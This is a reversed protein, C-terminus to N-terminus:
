NTKMVIQESFLRKLQAVEASLTALQNRLVMNESQYVTDQHAPVSTTNPPFQSLSRQDEASRWTPSIMRNSTGQEVQQSLPAAVSAYSGKAHCNDVPLVGERPSEAGAETSLKFRLKYPLSKVPDPSEYRQCRAGEGLLSGGADRDLDMGLCLHGDFCPEEQPPSFKEQDTVRDEFFVPSGMSSSGPTSFGSDESFGAPEQPQLPRGYPQQPVSTDRNEGPSVPFTGETRAHFGNQVPGLFRVAQPSTTAAAPLLVPPESPDKILGFRFKLALLEAKLRANEELLAIVRNELVLDNVRRKERSRKAAENNKRRKDWYGDDKKEDPMFERKRRMNSADKHKATSHGLLSRALLSNTTLLSVAEETFSSAAPPCLDHPTQAPPPIDQQMEQIPDPVSISM